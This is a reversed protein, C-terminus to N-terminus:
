VNPIHRESMLKSVQEPAWEAAQCFNFSVGTEEPFANEM